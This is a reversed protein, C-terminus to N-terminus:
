PDTEHYGLAELRARLEDDLEVEAPEWAETRYVRLYPEVRAHARPAAGRMVLSGSDSAIHAPFPLEGPEKGDGLLVPFSEVKEGDFSLELKLTSPDSIDPLRVGDIDIRKRDYIPDLPNRLQADLRVTPGDTRLADVPELEVGDALEFGSGVVSIELTIQRPEEGSRANVLEVYVGDRLSREIESLSRSLSTAVEPEAEAIDVQEGPDDELDFLSVGATPGTHAILKHRGERLATLRGRGMEFYIPRAPRANSREPDLLGLFSAGDLAAPPTAGLWEALTPLWDMLLVPEPVRRGGLRGGPLRAIMPVHVQEEFLTVGHQVLGHDWFEEGHDSLLVVLADDYLGRERLAGLFRGFEHDAYAIEGDYLNVAAARRTELPISLPPQGDDPLPSSLGPPRGAFREAYPEPPAYPAHPDITHVYLFHPGVADQGPDDLYALVAATVQAADSGRQVSDIDVYTDFGREFGFEPLVNPNSVFAATAYGESKLMEALTLVDPRVRHARGLAGHRSPVRGTMLSAVSPRTWSAPAYATDFVVAETAWADVNPSTPRGYGYVGLHDARLADILYFIVHPQAAAPDAEVELRPADCGAGLLLSVAVLVWSVAVLRIGPRRM